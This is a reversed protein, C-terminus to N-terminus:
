WKTITQYLMSGKLFENLEGKSCCNILERLEDGERPKAMEGKSYLLRMYKKSFKTQPNLSSLFTKGGKTLGKSFSNLINCVQQNEFLHMMGMSLISNIKDSALNLKLIDAQVLFINGGLRGSQKIKERCIRLMEISNDILIIECESKLYADLTFNLSGCGADVFIGKTNKVADEAFKKYDSIENGWMIKNYIRSGVVVDYFKSKSDYGGSMSNEINSLGYIDLEILKIPISFYQQLDM